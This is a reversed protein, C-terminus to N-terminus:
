AHAKTKGASQEVEDVRQRVVAAAQPSLQVVPNRAFAHITELALAKGNINLSRFERILEKEEDSLSIENEELGYFVSISKIKYLKCLVFLMDADPQGRGHEWASVTKDSKGIKEGVEKTTFGAQERYEKLKEALIKRIEKESM